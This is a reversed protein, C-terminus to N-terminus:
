YQIIKDTWSLAFHSLKIMRARWESLELICIYVLINLSRIRWTIENARAYKKKCSVSKFKSNNQITNQCFSYNQGGQM